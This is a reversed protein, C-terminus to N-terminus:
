FTVNRRFIGGKPHSWVKAVEEQGVIYRLMPRADMVMEPICQLSSIFRNKCASRGDMWWFYTSLPYSALALCVCATWQYSPIISSSSSSSAASVAGYLKTIPRPVAVANVSCPIVYVWASGVSKVHGPDRRADQM